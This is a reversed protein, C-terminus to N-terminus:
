AGVMILQDHCLALVMREFAAQWILVKKEEIYRQGQDLERHCAWCGSAFFCDHAKM